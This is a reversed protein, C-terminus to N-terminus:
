GRWWRQLSFFSLKNIRLYSWKVGVSSILPCVLASARLWGSAHFNYPCTVGRERRVSANGGGGGRCGDVGREAIQWWRQSFFSLSVSVSLCLSLSLSPSASLCSLSPSLSFCRSLWISLCLDAAMEAVMWGEKLRPFRPLPFSGVFLFNVIGTSTFLPSSCFRRYM